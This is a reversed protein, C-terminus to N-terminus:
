GEGRMRLEGILTSSDLLVLLGRPLRICGEIYSAKVKEMTSLPPEVTSIPVTVIDSIEDAQFGVIADDSTVLVIRGAGGSGRGPLGFVNRLDVVSVVSGRHNIVGPIFAPTFPIPTPHVGGIIEILDRLRFGYWEAALSFSLIQITEEAADAEQDGALGANEFARRLEEGKSESM